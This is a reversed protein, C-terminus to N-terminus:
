LYCKRYSELKSRLLSIGRNHIQCARSESVKLFGAIEKMTLKRYHYLGIVLREREPLAEIAKTLDAKFNDFECQEAPGIKSDALQEMWSEDSDDGMSVDLSLTMVTAESQIKQLEKLSINMREAIQKDTPANGLEQELEQVCASLLKIKKRSTRGVKDLCRMQDLIAGKIRPIAFAKFNTGKVLRYKDIAEILGIVGYAILDEEEIEASRMYSLRSVVQSVLNLNAEILKQRDDKNVIWCAPGSNM